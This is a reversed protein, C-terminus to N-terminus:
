VHARGIEAGREYVRAPIDVAYADKDDYVILYAHDDGEHGGDVMEVGPLDSVVYRMALLIEDCIGQTDDEDQEWEDYNKQAATAIKQRLATLRTLLKSQAENAPPMKAAYEAPYVRITPLRGLKGGTGAEPEDANLSVIRPLKGEHPKMEKLWKPGHEAWAKLCAVTRSRANVKVTHQWEQVGEPWDERPFYMKSVGVTYTKLAVNKAEPMPLNPATGMDCQPCPGNHKVETPEEPGIGTKVHGCSYYLTGEDVGEKVVRQQLKFGSAKLTRNLTIASAKSVYTDAAERTWKTGMSKAIALFPSTAPIEVEIPTRQEFKVKVPAEDDNKVYYDVWSYPGKHQIREDVFLSAIPM